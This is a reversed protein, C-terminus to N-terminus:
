QVKIVYEAYVLFGTKYYQGDWSFVNRFFFQELTSLGINKGNNSIFDEHLIPLDLRIRKLCTQFYLSPKVNESIVNPSFLDNIGNQTEFFSSKLYSSNIKKREVLDSKM